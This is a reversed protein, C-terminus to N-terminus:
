EGYTLASTYPPVTCGGSVTKSQRCVGREEKPASVPSPSSKKIETVACVPVAQEADAEEESVPADKVSLPVSDEPFPMQEPASNDGRRNGQYLFVSLRKRLLRITESDNSRIKAFLAANTGSVPGAHSKALCSEKEGAPIDSVAVGNSDSRAKQGSCIMGSSLPDAASSVEVKGSLCSVSSAKGARVFFETGRVAAVATPTKVTLSSGKMLKPSLIFAEGKAVALDSRESLGQGYAVAEASVVTDGFVKVATDDFYIECFSKAGVTTVTMKGSIPDGPRASATAGSPGSILVTGSVFNVLGVRLSPVEPSRACSCLIISSLLLVSVTYKKM